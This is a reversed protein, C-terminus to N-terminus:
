WNAKQYLSVQHKEAWGCPVEIVFRSERESSFTEPYTEPSVCREIHMVRKKDDLWVIDIPYNMEKMWFSHRANESFVFLMGENSALSPTNSLGQEQQEPDDAVKARIWGEGMSVTICDECREGYEDFARKAEEWVAPYQQQTKLWYWWEAGWWYIRSFGVRQAYELTDRLQRENMTKFQEELPMTGIWGPGWPEGQLEIVYFNEQDTFLRVIWEKFKFFNPGVPYRYYGVEPKYIDRYMTTGFVDGREAASVWISLEGSDSMLIERSPDLSRVIAIEQELIDVDLPPCIGFFPLFAENEVQWMEIEERDKYRSVTAGVFRLLESKRLSDDEKAWQPIHCEPWRPVRQGVTLIVNAGRKKAEDLQWDVDSYDYMGREKEVLDWYVPIRVERVGMEDLLATYTEKWDLGLSEAQRNSFTIGLVFDQRVEQGPLNFFLFLALIVGILSLVTIGFVRWFARWSFIRHHTQTKM